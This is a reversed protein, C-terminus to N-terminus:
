QLEVQFLPLDIILQQLSTIILLIMGVIILIAVGTIISVAVIDPFGKEKIWHVSPYALMTMILSLLLINVIYSTMQIGIVIMIIFALLVVTAYTKPINKTEIM